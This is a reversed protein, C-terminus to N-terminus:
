CVAVSRVRWPLTVARLPLWPLLVALAVVNRFFVMEIASFDDSLQRVLLGTVTNLLGALAMAALAAQPATPFPLRERDSVLRFLVYGSTFWTIRSVIIGIM